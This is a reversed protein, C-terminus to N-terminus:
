PYYCRSVRGAEQIAIFFIRAYLWYATFFCYIMICSLRKEFRVVNTTRNYSLHRAIVSCIGYSHVVNTMANDYFREQMM